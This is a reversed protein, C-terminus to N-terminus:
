AACALEIEMLRKGALEVTITAEYEERETWDDARGLYMLTLCKHGAVASDLDAETIESTARFFQGASKKFQENTIDTFTTM